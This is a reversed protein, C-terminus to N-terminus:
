VDNPRAGGIGADGSAFPQAPAAPADATKAPVGHGPPRGPETAFFAIAVVVVLIVGVILGFKADSPM